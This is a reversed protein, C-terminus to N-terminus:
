RSKRSKIAAFNRYSQIAEEFIRRVNAAGGLGLKESIASDSLEECFMMVIISRQQKTWIKDFPEIPSSIFAYNLEPLNYELSRLIVSGNKTVKREYGYEVKYGTETKEFYPEDYVDSKSLDEPPDTFLPQYNLPDKQVQFMRAKVAWGFRHHIYGTFGGRGDFKNTLDLFIVAMENYIDNADMNIFANPLRTAVRIFEDLSSRIGNAAFLALFLKTDRPIRHYKSDLLLNGTLLAVYKMLYNNFAKLLYELDEPNKERAYREGVKNVDALNNLKKPGNHLSGFHWLSLRVRGNENLSPNPNRRRRVPM